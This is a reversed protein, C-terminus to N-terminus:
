QSLQCICHCLHCYLVLVCQHSAAGMANVSLGNSKTEFKCEPYIFQTTMPLTQGSSQFLNSDAFDGTGYTCMCRNGWLDFLEDTCLQSQADGGDGALDYLTVAM